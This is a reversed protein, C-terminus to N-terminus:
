LMRNFLFLGRVVWNDLSSQRYWRGDFLITFRGPFKEAKLIADVLEDKGPETHYFRKFDSLQKKLDGHRKKLDRAKAKIMAIASGSAGVENGSHQRYQIYSNEDYYMSGLYTAVM